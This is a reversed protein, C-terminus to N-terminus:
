KNLNAKLKTIISRTKIFKRLSGYKKSKLVKKTLLKEINRHTMPVKKSHIETNGDTIGNNLIFKRLKTNEM